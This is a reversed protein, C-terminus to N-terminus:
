KGDPRFLRSSAAIMGQLQQNSDFSAPEVIALLAPNNPGDLDEPFDLIDLMAKALDPAEAEEEEKDTQADTQSTTTSSSSSSLSSSLNSTINTTLNFASARAQTTSDSSASSLPSGTSISKSSIDQLLCMKSTTPTGSDLGTLGVIQMYDIQLMFLHLQCLVSAHMALRHGCSRPMNTLTSAHESSHCARWVCMCACTTMLCTVHKACPFQMCGMAMLACTADHPFLLKPPPHPAPPLCFPPPIFM